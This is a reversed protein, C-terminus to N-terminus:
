LMGATSASPARAGLPPATTSPRPRHQQNFGGHGRPTRRRCAGFARDASTDTPAAQRGESPAAASDDVKSSRRGTLRNLVGTIKSRMVTKRTVGGDVAAAGPMAREDDEEEDLEDAAEPGDGGEPGEMADAGEHEDPLPPRFLGLRGTYQGEM